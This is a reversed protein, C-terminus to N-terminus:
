LQGCSNRDKRSIFYHSLIGVAGNRENEVIACLSGDRRTVVGILWLPQREMLHPKGTVSIPIPADFGADILEDDTM